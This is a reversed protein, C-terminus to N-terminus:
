ELSSGRNLLDAFENSLEQAHSHAEGLKPFTLTSVEAETPQRFTGEAAQFEVLSQQPQEDKEGNLTNTIEVKVERAQKGRRTLHNWVYLLEPLQRDTSQRM